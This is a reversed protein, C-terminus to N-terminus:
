DAESCLPRSPDVVLWALSGLVALAAAVLFPATWGLHLAIYPTLFTTVAGGFQGGMNMFGSLSGSFRGGIDASIAWFSSQSVYLAGAGGALIVAALPASNVRSGFALFVATLAIGFVAVGCRGARRSVHKTLYDAVLGGVTCGLAMAIFPLTGYFASAKLQMGRVRALYIFFWAFFMWAVYGYCFYSFTIAWVSWNSLIIGWPVAVRPTPAAQTPVAVGQPAASHEILPAPLQTGAPWGSGGLTLGSHIAALEAASVLPHQDPTDRSGLFWVAGAALGIIACIWFSYRWGYHIMVYTILPPSAASGVGVGAFILGNALGREQTPIWRAIFQTASPYMVAEGVGLLSRTLLLLVFPSRLSTPVAATLATFIGWWAVGGALVSRPGWKDALWGAPTQFLAYGLLFVTSLLGFQVDTLRYDVALRLGAVSLNARDLFAVASLVFLWGILLWRIHTPRGPNV